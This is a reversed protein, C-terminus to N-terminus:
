NFALVKMKWLFTRRPLENLKWLHNSFIRAVIGSEFYKERYACNRSNNWKALVSNPLCWRLLSRTSFNRAIECPHFLVRLFWLSKFRTFSHLSPRPLTLSFLSLPPIDECRLAILTKARTAAQFIKLAPTRALCSIADPLYSEVLNIGHSFDAMEGGTGTDNRGTNFMGPMAIGEMTGGSMRRYVREVVVWPCGRWTRMM